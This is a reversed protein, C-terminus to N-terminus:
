IIHLSGGSLRGELWKGSLTLFAISFFITRQKTTIWWKTSYLNRVPACDQRTQRPQSTDITLSYERPLGILTKYSTLPHKTEDHRLLHAFKQGFLKLCFTACQRAAIIFLSALLAILTTDSIKIKATRNSFILRKAACYKKGVITTANEQINYAQKIGKRDRSLQEKTWM